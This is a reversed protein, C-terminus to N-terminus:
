EPTVLYHAVPMQEAQHFTQVRKQIKRDNITYRELQRLHEMWSGVVFTEVFIGPQLIDEYVAWSISGGRRRVRRMDQMCLMFDRSDAQQIRYEYSVRVPGRDHHIDLAPVPDSIDSLDLNLDPDKDLRWYLVPLVPSHWELRQWVSLFQLACSSCGRM